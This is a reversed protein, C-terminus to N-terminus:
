LVRLFRKQLKYGSTNPDLSLEARGTLVTASMLITMQVRCDHNHYYRNNPAYMNAETFHIFKGQRQIFPVGCLMTKFLYCLLTTIGYM